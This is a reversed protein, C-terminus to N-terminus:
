SSKKTTKRTRTTRTRTQKKRPAPKKEEAKKEVVKKEKVAKVPEEKKTEQAEETVLTEAFYSEEPIGISNNQCYERLDEDSKINNAAFYAQLNLRARRAFDEFSSM